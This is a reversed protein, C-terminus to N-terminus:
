KGAEPFRKNGQWIGRLTEILVKPKESKIVYGDAGASKATEIYYAEDHLSYAVIKLKPQVARLEGILTLGNDGKLSLDVLAMDPTYAEACTLAEAVSKAMSCIEFEELPELVIALADRVVANDDVILLKSAPM